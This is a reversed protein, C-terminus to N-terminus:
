VFRKRYQAYPASPSLSLSFPPSTVMTASFNAILKASKRAMFKCRLKEGRSHRQIWVKRQWFRQVRRFCNANKASDFPTVPSRLLLAFLGAAGNKKKDFFDFIHILNILGLGKRAMCVQIWRVRRIRKWLFPHNEMHWTHCYNARLPNIGLVIPFLFLSQAHPQARPIFVVPRLFDASRFACILFANTGSVTSIQAKRDASKRLHHKDGSHLRM